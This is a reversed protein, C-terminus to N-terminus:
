KRLETTDLLVRQMKLLADATARKGSLSFDSKFESFEASGEGSV